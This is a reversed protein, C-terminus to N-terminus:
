LRFDHTKHARPTRKPVSSMNESLFDIYEDLTGSQASQRAAAFARRREASRADSQM